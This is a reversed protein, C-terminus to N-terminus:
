IGNIFALKNNINFSMYKELGNPMVNVEFNFKDLEQMILHSDYCKLNQFVISIKYNLKVKINCGRHASCRCKGTVHCHDKLKIDDDVHANDFIGYKTSNEFDEVDKKTM